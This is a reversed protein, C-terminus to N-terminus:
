SNVFRIKTIDKPLRTIDIEYGFGSEDEWQKVAEYECAGSMFILVGAEDPPEDNFYEDVEPPTSVGATECAKYIAYMKKFKEDPPKIGIVSTSMSM